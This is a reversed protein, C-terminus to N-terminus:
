DTHSKLLKDRAAILKKTMWVSGGSDPHIKKMLRKYAADIEVDDAGESVGLIEYAESTTINVPSNSIDKYIKEERRVHKHSEWVSYILPWLAAVGGIIAPLRGTIALIFVLASVSLTGIIIILTGIQKRSAHTLFRQAAALTVIVGIALLIYAM